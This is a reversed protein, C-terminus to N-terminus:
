TCFSDLYQVHDHWGYRDSSLKSSAGMGMLDPAVCRAQSQVHPIINRWLYSYMPNGHLFVLLPKDQSANPDTDIHAMVADDAVQVRQLPFAYDASIKEESSM